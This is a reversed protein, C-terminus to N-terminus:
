RAEAIEDYHFLVDNAYRELSFHELLWRRARVFSPDTESPLGLVAAALASPAGDCLQVAPQMRALALHGPIATAIVPTGCALAEAVALPPDGGERRSPAILADAALYLRRPDPTPDLYTIGTRPRRWCSPAGVVLLVAAPLERALAEVRDTGKADPDHGFHLLVRSRPRIQLSARAAAREDERPPRFRGLDIGNRVVHVRAAPAGRRVADVRLHEGACLVRSTLSALVGFKAADRANPWQRAPRTHLHWVVQDCGILSAAAAAADFRTFHTHVIRPASSTRRLETVAGIRSTNSFSVTVGDDSLACTWERGRAREPLVLEAEWGRRQVLAFVARLGAVFSGPVAAGYDAAHVIRM